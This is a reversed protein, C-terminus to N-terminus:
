VDFRIREGTSASYIPGGGDLPDYTWYEEPEVYIYGEREDLCGIINGFPDREYINCFSELVRFNLNGIHEFERGSAPPLPLTRRQWVLLIYWGADKSLSSSPPILGGKWYAINNVSGIEQNAWLRILFDKSPEGDGTSVSWVGRWEIQKPGCVIQKEDKNTDIWFGIDSNATTLGQTATNVTFLLQSDATVKWSKVLWAAKIAEEFTLPGSAFNPTIPFNFLNEDCSRKQANAPFRGIHRISAM